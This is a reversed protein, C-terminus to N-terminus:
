SGAKPDPFLLNMAKEVLCYNFRETPHTQATRSVSRGSLVKPESSVITTRRDQDQATMKSANTELRAIAAGGM